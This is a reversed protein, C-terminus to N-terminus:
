IKYAATVLYIVLQFSKIIGSTMFAKFRKNAKLSDAHFQSFPLRVNRECYQMM